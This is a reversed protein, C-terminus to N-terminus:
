QPFHRKMAFRDIHCPFPNIQNKKERERHFPLYIKYRNYRTLQCLLDSLTPPIGANVQFIIKRKHWMCKGFLFENGEM